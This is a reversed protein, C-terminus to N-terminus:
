LCVCDCVFLCLSLCVFGGVSQVPPGVTGASMEEFHTISGCACTETLGYGQHSSYIILIMAVMSVQLLDVGLVARLYEHTSPSLPAGGSLIARVRGGLLARISKFVLRVMVLHSKKM